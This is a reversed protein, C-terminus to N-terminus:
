VAVSKQNASDEQQQSAGISQQSPSQNIGLAKEIVKMPIGGVKTASKSQSSPIPRMTLKGAKYAAIFDAIIWDGVDPEECITMMGISVDIIGILPLEAEYLGLSDLIHDCVPDDGTYFLQLPDANKPVSDSEESGSSESNTTSEVLAQSPGQAEALAEQGENQVVPPVGSAGAQNAEATNKLVSMSFAVDGPAGETFVILSPLDTIRCLSYENLEYFPQSRWPFKRGMPDELLVNRGHKTILENQEDLIVFAPIGCVGYVKTLHSLKQADFPFAFWPMSHLHQEFSEQSRDSSCFIIEFNKGQKKIKEYAEAIQRGVQKCPPYWNAAFYIGKVCSKLDSFDTTEISRSGDQNEISRLLKGQFIEAPSLDVWPFNQGSPDELLSRRGESTVVQRSSSEVISLSPPSSYKLSRLLRSKTLHPLTAVVFWGPEGFAEAGKESNTVPEVDIVVVALETQESSSAISITDKKKKKSKRKLSFLRRIKAPSSSSRKEADEGVSAANKTVVLQKLLPALEESHRSGSRILHFLVYRSTAFVHDLTTLDQLSSSSPSKKEKVTPDPVRVVPINRFCSEYLEDFSM